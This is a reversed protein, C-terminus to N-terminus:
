VILLVLIVLLLLIIVVDLGAFCWLLTNVDVGSYAGTNLAYRGGRKVNLYNLYEYGLYDAEYYTDYADSGDNEELIGYFQNPDDCPAYQYYAPQSVAAEYDAYSVVPYTPQDGKDVAHGCYECYDSSDPIVCRCNTCKM